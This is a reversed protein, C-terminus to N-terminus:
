KDDDFDLDDLDGDDSEDSDIDVDDSDEELDEASADDEFEDDSVTHDSDQADEIFTDESNEEREANNSKGYKQYSHIVAERIEDVSVKGEEIEILSRLTNKVDKEVDTHAGFNLQKTRQSAILVLDFKDYVGTKLCDEVTIRAM